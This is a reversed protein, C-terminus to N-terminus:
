YKESGVVINISTDGSFPIGGTTLGEIHVSMQGIDDTCFFEVSAKGNVDTKIYPNWYLTSRFKPNEHRVLDPPTFYLNVPKSLGDIMLSSDLFPERADGKKAQVTVIGNKGFLGLPLLKRPDNIIKVTLLDSPKLSLFYDTNKTAVGDIIYVPDGTAAVSMVEPLFIRVINKKKVKRHQMSPIVERVLEEMTPFITYDEIDIVIDAENIEEEWDNSITGNIKQDRSQYVDFSHEILKRQAVFTAYRDPQETENAKLPKISFVPENEWKIKLGPVEEGHKAGGVYFYKEAFFLLEDHGFFDPMALFVKGKEIPTQFRLRSKQFYFIAQMFEPVSALSDELYVTGRKEIGTKFSFQSREGGMKMISTWPIENPISILFNDLSARWNSDSRDILYKSGGNSLLDLEDILSNEALPDFLAKNIVKIAFEGEVPQGNSNTLSVELQIKERTQFNKRPGEIRTKIGSVRENYFNRSALLEGNDTLLSISALGGPLDGLALKLEISDKDDNLARITQYARGRNSLVIFLEKNRYRSDRPSLIRVKVEEQLEGRKLFIGCGDDETKTLPFRISEGVASVFYSAGRKPLFTLSAIGKRDTTARSVEVGAADVIQVAIGPRHTRVSIRNPINGVLNGGEAFTSIDHSEDLVVENKRVIMLEKSFTCVPSSDTTKSPYATVIYAGATLSEPIVLQNWGIGNAVRFLFHVKTLGQFDFLKFDILLNGKVGVFDETLLYAKFYATDGPYFKSQNFSLYLKTKPSAAHYANFKQTLTTVTLQGKANFFSVMLFAITLIRKSM